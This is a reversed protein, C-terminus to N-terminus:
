CVCVCQLVCVAVYQPMSACARTIVHIAICVGMCVSCSVAACVCVCVCVCFCVYNEIRCNGSFISCGFHVLDLFKFEETCILIPARRRPAGRRLQRAGDPYTWILM